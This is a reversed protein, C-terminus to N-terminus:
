FCDFHTFANAMTMITVIANINFKLCFCVRDDKTLMKMKAEEGYQNDNLIDASINSIVVRQKRFRYSLAFPYGVTEDFDVIECSITGTTPDFQKKNVKWNYDVLIYDKVLQEGFINVLDQFTISSLTDITDSVM